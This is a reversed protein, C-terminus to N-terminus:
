ETSPQHASKRREGDNPEDAIRELPIRRRVGAARERRHVRKGTLTAIGAVCWCELCSEYANAEALMDAILRAEAAMLSRVVLCQLRESRVACGAVAFMDSRLVQALSRIFGAHLAVAIELYLVARRMILSRDIVKVCLMGLESGQANVSAIRASDPQIM